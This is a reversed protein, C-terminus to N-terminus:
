NIKENKVFYLVSCHVENFDVPSCNFMSIATVETKRFVTGKSRWPPLRQAAETLDEQSTGSALPIFVLTTLDCCM